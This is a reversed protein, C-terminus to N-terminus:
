KKKKGTNKARGGTIEPPLLKIITAISLSGRESEYGWKDAVLQIREALSEQKDTPQVKDRAQWKVWADVTARKNAGKKLYPEGDKQQINGTAAASQQSAETALASDKEKQEDAMTEAEIRFLDHVKFEYIEAWKMWEGPTASQMGKKKALRQMNKANKLVQNPANQNPGNELKSFINPDLGSMLRAAEAATLTPMQRVWYRWNIPADNYVSENFAADFESM